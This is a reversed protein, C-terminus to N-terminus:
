AQRKQYADQLGVYISILVEHSSLIANLVQVMLEPSDDYEHSIANRIERLEQWKEASAILNLKELKNLMDLFPVHEVDEQLLMLMAKFLRQGMADQLKAYRFLFQDIHTIDEENLQLYSDSQLPVTHQIKQYASMMRAQHTDCERFIRELKQNIINSM